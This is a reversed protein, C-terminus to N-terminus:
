RAVGLLNGIIELVRPNLLVVAALIIVGLVRIQHVDEKTAMTVKIVAIQEKLSAVEREGKEFRAVMEERLAADSARIEERLAADSARIEEKLAAKTELLDEKTAAAGRATEEVYSLLVKTEEEGLRSKLREYVEVTGVPM